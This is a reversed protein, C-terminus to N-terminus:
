ASVKETNDVSLNVIDSETQLVFVYILLVNKHKRAM